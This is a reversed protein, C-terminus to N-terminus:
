GKFVALRGKYYFKDGKELGARELESYTNFRPYGLERRQQESAIKVLASKKDEANPAERFFRQWIEGEESGRYTERLAQRLTGFSLPAGSHEKLGLTEKTENLAQRSFQRETVPTLSMGQAAAQELLAAKKGYYTQYINLALKAKHEMFPRIDSRRWDGTADPGLVRDIFADAERDFMGSFQASQAQMLQDSLASAEDFPLENKKYASILCNGANRVEAASLKEGGSMKRVARYAEALPIPSREEKLGWLTDEGNEANLVYFEAPNITGQELNQWLKRAKDFAALEAQEQQEEEQKQAQAERLKQVEGIQQKLTDGAEPLYTDAAATAADPDSLALNLIGTKLFGDRYQQKEAENLFPSHAIEEAGRALLFGGKGGSVNTLMNQTDALLSNLSARGFEPAKEEKIKRVDARNAAILKDGHKKWFDAGYSKNFEPANFRGALDNEATKAIEELAAPTEAAMMANRYNQLSADAEMAYRQYESLRQKEALAAATDTVIQVADASNNRELVLEEGLPTPQTRVEQLNLAGRLGAGPVTQRNAM